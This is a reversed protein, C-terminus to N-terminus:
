KCLSRICILESLNVRVFFFFEFSFLTFNGKSCHSGRGVKCDDCSGDIHRCTGNCSSSCPISCNKGFYGTTCALIWM